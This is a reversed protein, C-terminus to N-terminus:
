PEGMEEVAEPHALLMHIRPDKISTALDLHKQEPRIGTHRMLLFVTTFDNRAIAEAFADGLVQERKPGLPAGAELLQYLCGTAKHEVASFLARNVAEPDDLGLELLLQTMMVDYLQVAPIILFTAVENLDAGVSALLKVDDYRLDRVADIIATETTSHVEMLRWLTLCDSPEFGLEMAALEADLDYNHFVLKGVETREVEVLEDQDCDIYYLDRTM